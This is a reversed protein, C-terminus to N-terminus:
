QPRWGYGYAEFITQFRLPINHDWPLLTLEVNSRRFFQRAVIPQLALAPDQFLPYKGEENVANYFASVITDAIQCGATTRASVQEILWMDLVRPNITAAQLFTTGNLAQQRLYEMYAATQSYRVGGTEAVVIKLKAAHGFRKASSRAVAETVRELLIRLCFNYFVNEGAMKAARDNVYGRMNDKHSLVVFSRLPLKAIEKAVACRRRDDLSKYHLEGTLPARAGARVSKIWETIEAEFRKAIVFGGIGFWTTSKTGEAFTKTGVDGAEDIFVVYEYDRSTVENM